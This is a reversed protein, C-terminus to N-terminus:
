FMVGLSLGFVTDMYDYGPWSSDREERRLQASLRTARTPMWTWDLTWAYLDDERRDGVSTPLAGLFRRRAAEWTAGIEQKATLSWRAGLALGDRVAYSSEPDQWAELRREYGAKLGLRAGPRWALDVRGRWGDFDREPVNPHRRERYAVVSELRTKDNFPYSVGLEYDRQTYANDQYAALDVPRNLYDGDRQIVRFVASRGSGPAYRVGATWGTADFDDEQRFVQSNTRRDHVLGALAHWDAFLWVDAEFLQRRTTRVNKRFDVYDAFDNLAEVQSAELTGSVRPTLHWEWVGDYQVLTSDLFDFSSYRSRAVSADLKFRQQGIPKDVSVGATVGLVNDSHRTVGAPHEGEDLRFLNSDHQYAAGVKLNFVDAQDASAAACALVLPLLLWQRPIGSTAPPRGGARYHNLTHPKLYASM